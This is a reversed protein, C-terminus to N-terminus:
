RRATTTQMGPEDSQALRGLAGDAGVGELIVRESRNGSGLEHAWRALVGGRNGWGTL